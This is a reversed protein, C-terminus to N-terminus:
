DSLGAKTLRLAEYLRDWIEKLAYHMTRLLATLRNTRWHGAWKSSMGLALNYTSENFSNMNKVPNDEKHRKWDAECWDFAACM